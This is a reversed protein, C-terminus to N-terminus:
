KWLLVMLIGLTVLFLGLVSTGKMFRLCNERTATIKFFHLWYWPWYREKLKEYKSEAWGGWIVMSFLGATILWFVILLIKEMQM